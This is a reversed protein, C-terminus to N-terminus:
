FLNKTSRRFSTLAAGLHHAWANANVQVDRNHQEPESFPHPNFLQRSISEKAYCIWQLGQTFFGVYLTQCFCNFNVVHISYAYSTAM